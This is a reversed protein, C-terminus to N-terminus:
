MPRLPTVIDDCQPRHIYWANLMLRRSHMELETQLFVCATGSPPSTDMKRATSAQPQNLKAAEWLGSAGFLGAIFEVRIIVRPRSFPGIVHKPSWELSQRVYKSIKPFPLLVPRGTVKAQWLAPLGNAEPSEVGVRFTKQLECKYHAESGVHLLKHKHQHRRNPGWKHLGCMGVGDPRLQPQQLGLGSYFISVASLLFM